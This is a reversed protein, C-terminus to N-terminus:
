KATEGSSHYDGYYHIFFDDSIADMLTDYIEDLEEKSRARRVVDTLAMYIRAALEDVHESDSM